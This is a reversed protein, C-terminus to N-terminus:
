RCFLRRRIRNCLTQIQQQQVVPVSLTIDAATTVKKTTKGKKSAIDKGWIADAVRFDYESVDFGSGERLMSIAMEVSPYGMTALLKRARTASEIERKTYRKLNETVTDIMVHESRMMSRADCVYFRGESGAVNRRAFHYTNDSFITRNM